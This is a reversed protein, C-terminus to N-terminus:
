GSRRLQEWRGAWKWGNIERARRRTVHTAAQGRRHAVLTAIIAAAEELEPPAEEDMAFREEVFKTDFHGALFRTSNLIAQHFPIITKIGIIRFEELARRMRLIAEGRTEGWAIVKAILSDYYPTIECGEYVGSDVRVGPGTPEALTVIRGTSPMFNNFPDEATIRCEIAWGTQRIDEQRYRLKRGRAIRIQEKVIDVGTVMETVPHEVQLRTNMEIFYFNREKDVLFEVTGANVYGIAQAIRVAVEGMRQRMEEDVIPSPSEEILKQHRRQISCEREGLHIVNGHVDALIQVEVHRAGEVLKELYVDDDGFAAMAERRAAALADPMEEMSRVIRMGKGGGGASAKILIPFGIRRAAEMLDEDSLGGDTGPVIPVGLAKAMKRATAKDGMAGIAQPPPGIFTIGAEACARAFDPRESLFGYGPHIADAGARRAVDIIKDIRLYSERAPAPGLCYAEDAYRVHLADRDVESFVAVTRIGLERCARIVRVAIEGRNAILIKRFM